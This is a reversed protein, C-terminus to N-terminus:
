VEKKPRNGRWIMYCFALVLAYVVYASLDHPIDHVIRSLTLGSGASSQLIVTSIVM